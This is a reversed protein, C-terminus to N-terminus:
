YNFDTDTHAICVVKFPTQDGWHSGHWTIGINNKDIYWIQTGYGNGSLYHDANILGGSGVLKVMHPNIGLNHTIYYTTQGGPNLSQSVYVKGGGGSLKVM